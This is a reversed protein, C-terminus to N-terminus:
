QPTPTHTHDHEHTAPRPEVKVSVEVKGAREFTLTLPFSDGEKFPKTGGFLMIHHGGPALAVEASAPLDIGSIQQMTQVDGVAKSEHIEAAAFDPASVAILRDTAGSNMIEAFAAVPRNPVAPRAWPHHIMLDGLKFEHAIAPTTLLLAAILAVFSRIM